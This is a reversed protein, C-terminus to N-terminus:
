WATKMARIDHGHDYGYKDFSILSKSLKQGIRCHPSALAWSQRCSARLMIRFNHPEVSISRTLPWPLRAIWYDGAGSVDFVERLRPPYTFRNKRVKACLANETRGLHCSCVTKLEKLITGCGFMLNKDGLPNPDKTDDPLNALEFAKRAIPTIL